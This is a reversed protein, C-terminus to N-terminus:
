SEAQQQEVALRLGELRSRHGGIRCIDLVGEVKNAAAPQTPARIQLLGERCSQLLTRRRGASIYIEHEQTISARRAPQDPVASQRNTIWFIPFFQGCWLAGAVVKESPTVVGGERQQTQEGAM